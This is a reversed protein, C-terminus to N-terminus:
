SAASEEADTAQEIKARVEDTVTDPASNIREVIHEIAGRRLNFIQSVQSPSFGAKVQEAILRDREQIAHQRGSEDKDDGEGAAAAVFQSKIYNRIVSETGYSAKTAAIVDAKDAMDSVTFKIGINVIEIIKLHVDVNTTDIGYEVCIDEAVHMLHKRLFRQVQEPGHMSGDNKGRQYARELLTDAEDHLAALEDAERIFLNFIGPAVPSESSEEILLSIMSALAKMRDAAQELDSLFHTNERRTCQGASAPISNSAVAEPM